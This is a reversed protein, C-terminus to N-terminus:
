YLNFIRVGILSSRFNDLGLRVYLNLIEDRIFFHRDRDRMGAIDLPIRDREISRLTPPALSLDTHTHLFFVKDFRDKRGGGM